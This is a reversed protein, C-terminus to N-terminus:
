RRRIGDGAFGVYSVLGDREQEDRIVGGGLGERGGSDKRVPGGAACGEIDGNWPLFICVGVGTEVVLTGRVRVRLVHLVVM